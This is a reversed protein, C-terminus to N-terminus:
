KLVSVWGKFKLTGLSITYYYTGSSVNKGDWGKVSDATRFIEKGWRDIVLLTFLDQGSYPFYEKGDKIFITLRDNKTDENETIV